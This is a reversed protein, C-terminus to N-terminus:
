TTSCSKENLKKNKKKKKLRFGAYSIRMLSQLESTHEESRLAGAVSVLEIRESATGDDVSWLTQTGSLSAPATGAILVSAADARWRATFADGEVTCVDTSELM